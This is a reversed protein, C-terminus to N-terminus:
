PAAPLLYKQLEPWLSDKHRSRFFDLHGIRRLNFSGPETTVFTKKGGYRNLLWKRQAVPAYSDDSFGFSLAPAAITEARQWHGHYDPRSCWGFWQLAVGRPLDTGLGLTKGPLYGALRTIAGLVAVSSRFFYRSPFSWMRWYANGAALLILQHFRQPYEYLGFVQGGFSHGVATIPLGCDAYLWDLAAPQDLTAWDMMDADFGKLSDPASDGIGRWDWTLVTYGQDAFYGCFDFYFRRPIGSGPAM